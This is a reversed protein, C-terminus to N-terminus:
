KADHEGPEDMNYCVDSNGKEPSFLIGCLTYVLCGPKLQHAELQFNIQPRRKHRFKFRM